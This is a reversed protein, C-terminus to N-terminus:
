PVSIEYWLTRSAPGTRFALRGGALRSPVEALRRGKGDLAWVKASRASTALTVSAEIAECVTPASGWNRGVSTRRENWGMNTNEVDGAVAFPRGTANSLIQAFTAVSGGSLPAIKVDAAFAAASLALASLLYTKRVGLGRLIAFPKTRNM